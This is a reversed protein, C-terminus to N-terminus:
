RAMEASPKKVIFDPCRDFAETRGECDFVRVSPVVRHAVFGRSLVVGQGTVKSVQPSVTPPVQLAKLLVRCWVEVPAAVGMLPISRCWPSPQSAPLVHNAPASRGRKRLVLHAALSFSHPAAGVPATATKPSPASPM